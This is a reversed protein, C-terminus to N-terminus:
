QCYSLSNSCSLLSCLNSSADDGRICFMVDVQVFQLWYGLVFLCFREHRRCSTWPYTQRSLLPFYSQMCLVRHHLCCDLYAPCCFGAITHEEVMAADELPAGGKQLCIVREASPRDQGGITRHAGRQGAGTGWPPNAEDITWYVGAM